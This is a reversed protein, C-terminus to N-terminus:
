SDLILVSFTKKQLEKNRIEYEHQFRVISYTEGLFSHKGWFLNIHIDFM